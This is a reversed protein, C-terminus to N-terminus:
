QLENEELMMAEVWEFGGEDFGDPEIFYEEEFNECNQKRRRFGDEFTLGEGSPLPNRARRLHRNKKRNVPKQGLLLTKM